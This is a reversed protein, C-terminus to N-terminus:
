YRVFVKVFVYLAALYAVSLVTLRQFLAGDLRPEPLPPDTRALRGYVTVLGFIVYTLQHYCMTLTLMGVGFAVLVALLYPHFRRLEDDLVAARGPSLRGLRWVCAYFAGMFILGGFFGLEAYGHLFTNHAVLKIEEGPLSLAAGDTPGDKGKGSLPANKFEKFWDSWIQIRSQGTGKDTSLDTMRGASLLLLLPLGAGGLLLARRWGFRTGFLLLLGALVALFGGRSYTLLLGYGFLALTGLWLARALSAGPATFFYLSLLMGTIMVLSFENADKFIGTGDLRKTIDSGSKLQELFQEDETMNPDRPLQQTTPLAYLGHFGLMAVVALVVTFFLLCVLFVHLRQRTNVVSVLLLYYIVVKSFELSAAAAEDLRGQALNSFAIAGMMGVVFVTIPQEVLSRATLHQILEPIAAVLCALILANYIPIGQLEPLIEAPRIFLTANVLLFLFFAM